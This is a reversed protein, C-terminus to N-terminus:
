WKRRRSGGYRRRKKAAMLWRVLAVALATVAALALLASIGIWNLSKLLEVPNWSHSVHKRGDPQAYRSPVGEEGFSQLYAALAYWEKIENGNADRLICAEFNTVPSGDAMKPELSLLGLSKSKVTSLMQASYMGTVVRYLETADDSEGLGGGFENVRAETVRNFFMRHTNFSYNLGSTYLQAAPMLPTVSADVEAVAKLERGTLYVGVLPFGSAGDSGVGMSLVDFAMSTTIEGRSLPARLVGDATVAVTFVDPSDAELNKVAWRFSDAVLEGLANGSQAGSAPPALDFDTRTLTQDYTMGYRGLYTGGVQRKWSEILLSIERDDPITEDIPTLHYDDLTKEGNESWTLTISGLNRCYPGASVIYTDGVVLPETLTSHTHGSVILDIGPVKEALREDESLKKKENTGAHSLCIIFQAGQEKLANVCRQASAAMDELVFGSSPACAHSDEGMLGFIGYTIGGRELLMYDQVGYAAMARQVDLKDPSDAAPKYNAMLLAPARDGSSVVANLMSAFGSATHDFEHNGVAAADYGLAGMTRLEAGQTTYLTQILSGISFDGGDLTLADPRRARERDLATKLRAYGGSEGGAGDAQPLFHSHLDHTFLVTAAYDQPSAAWAPLILCLLVFALLFASIRHTHKM